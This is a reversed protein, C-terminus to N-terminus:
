FDNDDDSSEPSIMSIEKRNLAGPSENETNENQLSKLRMELRGPRKNLEREQAKVFANLRRIEDRQAKVKISMM